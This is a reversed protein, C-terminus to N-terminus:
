FIAAKTAYVLSISLGEFPRPQVKLMANAEELLYM